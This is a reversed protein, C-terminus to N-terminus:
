SSTDPYLVSNRRELNSLSAGVTKAFPHINRRQRLEQKADPDSHHLWTEDGTVLRTHFDEPNANHVELLEQGSEVRQQGYQMNLNRLVWRASEKSM